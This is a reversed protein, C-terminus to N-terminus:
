GFLGDKMPINQTQDCEVSQGEVGPEAEKSLLTVWM